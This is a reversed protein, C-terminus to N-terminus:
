SAGGKVLPGGCLLPWGEVLHTLDTKLVTFLRGVVPIARGSRVALGVNFHLLLRLWVSCTPSVCEITLAVTDLHEVDAVVLHALTLEEVFPELFVSGCALECTVHTVPGLVSNNALSSRNDAEAATM